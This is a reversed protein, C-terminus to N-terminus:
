ISQHSIMCFQSLAVPFGIIDRRKTKHQLNPSNKLKNYTDTTFIFFFIKGRCSRMHQDILDIQGSSSMLYFTFLDVFTYFLM